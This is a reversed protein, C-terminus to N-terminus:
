ATKKHKKRKMNKPPHAQDLEHEHSDLKYMRYRKIDIQERGSLILYALIVGFVVNVGIMLYPNRVRVLWFMLDYFGVMFLIIVERNMLTENREEYQAYFKGYKKKQETYIDTIKKIYWFLQLYWLVHASILIFRAVIKETTGSRIDQTTLIENVEEITFISLGTVLIIVSYIAPIYNWTVRTKGLLKEKKGMLSQHFMLMLPGALMSFPMLIVFGLIQVSGMEVETM